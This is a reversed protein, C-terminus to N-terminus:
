MWGPLGKLVGQQALFTDFTGQWGRNHSLKQLHTAPYEPAMLGSTRKFRSVTTRKPLRWARLRSAHEIRYFYCANNTDGFEIALLSGFRMLCVASEDAVYFRADDIYPVKQRWYRGRDDNAMRAFEEFIRELEGDLALKEFAARGQDSVNAWQGTRLEPDGLVALLWAVYARKSAPSMSAPELTCLQRDVVLGRLRVDGTSEVWVRQETHGSLAWWADSGRAILRELAAPVPHLAGEMGFAAPLKALPLGQAEALAALKQPSEDLAHRFTATSHADALWRPLSRERFRVSTRCLSALRVALSETVHPARGAVTRWLLLHQRWTLREAKLIINAIREGDPLHGHESRAIRSALVELTASVLQKPLATEHGEALWVEAERVRDASAEVPAYREALNRAQQALVRGAEVRPLKLVAARIM